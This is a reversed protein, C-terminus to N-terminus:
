GTIWLLYIWLLAGFVSVMLWTPPNWDTQYYYVRRRYRPYRWAGRAQRSM